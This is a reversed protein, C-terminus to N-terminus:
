FVITSIFRNAPCSCAWLVPKHVCHPLLPHSSSLPYCQCICVVQTFLYSTPLQQTVSLQVQYESLSSPHSSASAPPLCLFSPGYTYKLSIWTRTHCVAVHYQLAIVRWNFFFYLRLGPLALVTCCPVSDMSLGRSYFSLFSLLLSINPAQLMHCGPHSLAFGTLELGLEAM